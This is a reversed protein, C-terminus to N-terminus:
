EPYSIVTVTVEGVHCRLKILRGPALSIPQWEGPRIVLDPPPDSQDPSCLAVDIWRALDVAKLEPTPIVQYKPFPNGVLFYDTPPIEVWDKGVQHTRRVPASITKLDRGWVMTAMHPQESFNQHYIKGNFLITSPPVQAPRVPQMQREQNTTEITTYGDPVPTVAPLDQRPGQM